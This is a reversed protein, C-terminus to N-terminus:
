RRMARESERIRRNLVLSRLRKAGRPFNKMRKFGEGIRVRM